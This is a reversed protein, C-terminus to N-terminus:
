PLEPLTAWHTVKELDIITEDEGKIFWEVRNNGFQAYPQTLHGICICDEFIVLVEQYIDPWTSGDLDNFEKWIAVTM